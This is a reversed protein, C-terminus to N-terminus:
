GRRRRARLRDALLSAMQDADFREAGPGRFEVVIRSVSEVRTTLVGSDGRARAGRVGALQPVRVAPTDPVMALALERSARRVESIQRRVGAIYGLGTYDGLQMFLRSPSHAQIARRGAEYARRLLNGVASGVAGAMSLIGRILGAVAARGLAYLRSALGSLVGVVRSSLSAFFRVVASIGAAVVARLRGMAAAVVRSVAGFAAATIAHVRAWGAAVFRSAVAVGAFIVARIRSWVAVMVAHIANWVAITRSRIFNWGAVVVARVAALARRAIPGFTGLIRALVAHIASWARSTVARIASWTAAVIQRSRGLRSRIALIILGLATILVVRIVRWAAATVARVGAWVRGFFARIGGFIAVARARINRWIRTLMPGIRSWNRYVLYGVAVLGAIAGIAIAVPASVLGIAAAALSMAVRLLTGTRILRFLVLAFRGAPGAVRMFAGALPAIRLRLLAMVGGAAAASARLRLLARVATLTGGLGLARLALNLAIIQVIVNRVPAPMANFTRLLLNIARLLPSLSPLATGLNGLAIGLQEVFTAAAGGGLQALGRALGAIAAALGRAAPVAQELWNRIENRGRASQTFRLFRLALEDLYSVFRRALPMSIAFVNALAGAFRGLASAAQATLSPLAGLIERYSRLQAPATLERSLRAFMSRLAAGTRAAADALAPIARRALDFVDAALLALNRTAGSTSFARAFTNQLRELSSGFIRAAETNKKMEKALAMAALAMLGFGGIVGAGAAGVVVGGAALPSLIAILGAIAIGLLGIGRRGEAAAGGLGATEAKLAALEGAARAAGRVEVPIVVDDGSVSRMEEHLAALEGTAQAAGRVEVPIDVREADTRRAERRVASLERSVEALQSKVAVIFRLYRESAM